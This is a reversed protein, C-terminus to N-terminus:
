GSRLSPDAERGSIDTTRLWDEIARACAAPAEDPPLHGVGSLRVLESALLRGRLAPATELPVVADKTGWLLLTPHLLPRATLAAGLREMDAVWTKLMALSAGAAGPERLCARYAALREASLRSARGLVRGTGYDLFWSPMYRLLRALMGGVASNYFAVLRRERLLWPHAPCVLMLARVFEPQAVALEMALAGGHSHGLLIPREIGLTECLVRVQQALAAFTHPKEGMLGEVARTPLLVLRNVCGLEEALVRLTEPGAVMGHLLVIAPLTSDGAREVYRVGREEGSALRVLVTNETCSKM